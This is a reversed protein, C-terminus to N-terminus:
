SSRSSTVSAEVSGEGRHKRRRVHTEEFRDYASERIVEPVGFDDGGACALFEVDGQSAPEAVGAAHVREVEGVTAREACFAPAEFDELALGLESGASPGM